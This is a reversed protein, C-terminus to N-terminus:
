KTAEHAIVSSLQNPPRVLRPGEVRLGVSRARWSFKSQPGISARNLGSQPGISAWNLISRHKSEVFNLLLDDGSNALEDFAFDNGHGPLKFVLVLVRMLDDILHLFLSQEAAVHGFLVASQPQTVGGERHDDFLQRAAPHAYDTRDSRM